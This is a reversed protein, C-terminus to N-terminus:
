LFTPFSSPRVLVNPSIHAKSLQHPESQTVPIVVSPCDLRRYVNHEFTFVFCFLHVFFTLSIDAWKYMILSIYRDLKSWQKELVSLAAPAPPLSAHHASNKVHVSAHALRCPASEQLTLARVKRETYPCFTECIVLVSRYWLKRGLNWQAQFPAQQHLCRQYYQCFVPPFTHFVHYFLSILQISLCLVLFTVPICSCVAPWM